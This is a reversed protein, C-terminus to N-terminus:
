RVEAVDEVTLYRPDRYLKNIQVLAFDEGLLDGMASDDYWQRHLRWESGPDLLRYVVLAKLVNLWRTGKRSVGLHASWFGDLELRDWLTCSLWCGGWQRPRRLQIQDLRVRAVECEVTPLRQLDTSSRWNGLSDM